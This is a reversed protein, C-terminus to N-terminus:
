LTLIIQMLFVLTAAQPHKVLNSYFAPGFCYFSSRLTETGPVGTHLYNGVDQIACATFRFWETCHLNSTRPVSAFLM